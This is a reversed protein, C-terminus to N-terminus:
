AVGSKLALPHRSWWVHSCQQCQVRVHETWGKSLRIRKRVNTIRLRIREHCRKCKFPQAKLMFNSNKV